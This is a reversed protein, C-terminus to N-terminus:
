EVQHSRPLKIRHSTYSRSLSSSTTSALSVNSRKSKLGSIINNQLGKRERMQDYEKLRVQNVSSVSGGYSVSSTSSQESLSNRRTVWNQKYKSYISALDDADADDVIVIEYEKGNNKKTTSKYSTTSNNRLITCVDYSDKTLDIFVSDTDSVESVTTGTYRASRSSQYSSSSESSLDDKQNRISSDFWGMNADLNNKNSFKSFGINSSYNNGASPKVHMNSEKFDVPYTVPTPPEEVSIRPVDAVNLSPLVPLPRNLSEKLDMSKGRKHGLPKSEKHEQPKPEMDIDFNINFMSKHRRHKMPSTRSTRSLATKNIQETKANSIESKSKLMDLVNSASKSRRHSNYLSLAGIDTDLETDSGTGSESDHNIVKFQDRIVRQAAKSPIGIPELNTISKDVTAESSYSTDLQLDDFTIGSVSCTPKINQNSTDLDSLNPIEIQGSGESLNTQISHRSSSITSRRHKAQIEKSNTINDNSNPFSFRKGSGINDDDNRSDSTKISEEDDSQVKEDYKATPCRSINLPKIEEEGEEENAIEDDTFINIHDLDDIKKHSLDHGNNSTLKDSLMGESVISDALDYASIYSKNQYYDVDGNTIDISKQLSGYSSNSDMTLNSVISPTRAVVSSPASPTSPISQELPTSLAPLTSLVPNYAKNEFSTSPKTNIKTDDSINIQPLPKRKMSNTIKRVHPIEKVTPTTMDNTSTPNHKEIKPDTTHSIESELEFLSKKASDDVNPKGGFYSTYSSVPYMSDSVGIFPSSYSISSKDIKRKRLDEKEIPYCGNNVQSKISSKRSDSYTSIEEIVSLDDKSLVKFKVSQINTISPRKPLKNVLKKPKREETESDSEVINYGAGTYFLRRPKPSLNRSKSSPSGPPTLYKGEDKNKGLKPPLQLTFPIPITYKSTDSIQLRNSIPSHSLLKLQEQISGSGSTLLSVSDQEIPPLKFSRVDMLSGPMNRQTKVPSCSRVRREDSTHPKRDRASLRLDDYSRYPDLTTM